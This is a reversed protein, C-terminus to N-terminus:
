LAAALSLGGPADGVPRCDMQGPASARAPVAVWCGGLIDEGPPGKHGERSTVPGEFSRAMLSFCFSAPNGQHGLRPTVEAM